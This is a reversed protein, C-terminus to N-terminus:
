RNVEYLNFPIDAKSSVVSLRGFRLLAQTRVLSTTLLCLYIVDADVVAGENRFSDSFSELVKM